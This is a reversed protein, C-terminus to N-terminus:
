VGQLHLCYSGRFRRDIDVLSCLAVNWFVAVNMSTETLVQYRLKVKIYIWDITADTLVTSSPRTTKHSRQNGSIVSVVGCPRM